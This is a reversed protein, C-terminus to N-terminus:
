KFDSESLSSPARRNSPLSHSTRALQLDTPEEKAEKFLAALIPDAAVILEHIRAFGAAAGAPSHIATCAEMLFSDGGRGGLLDAKQKLWLRIPDDRLGREDDRWYYACAQLRERPSVLVMQSISLQSGPEVATDSQQLLSYGNYRACYRGAHVGMPVPAVFVVLPEGRGDQYQRYVIEAPRYAKRNLEADSDHVNLGHFQGLNYPFSRLVTTRFFGPQEQYAPKVVFLQATVGMGLIATVILVNRPIQRM